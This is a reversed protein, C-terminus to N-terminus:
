RRPETTTLLAVAGGFDSHTRKPQARTLNGLVPMGQCMIVLGSIRRAEGGASIAHLPKGLKLM